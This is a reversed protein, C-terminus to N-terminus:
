TASLQGWQADIESRIKDFRNQARKVRRHKEMFAQLKKMLKIQARTYLRQTDSFSSPPIWGRKEWNRLMQANCGLQTAVTGIPFVDVRKNGSATAVLRQFKRNSEVQGQDRRRKAAAIIKARYEPDNQYRAKRKQSLTTRNEKYWRRYTASRDTATAPM